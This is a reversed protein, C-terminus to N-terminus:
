YRVQNTLGKIIVINKADMIQQPTTKSRMITDRTLIIRQFLIKAEGIVILIELTGPVKM